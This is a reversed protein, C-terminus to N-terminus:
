LASNKNVYENWILHKEKLLAPIDLNYPCRSVCNRCETCKDTQLMQNNVMAFAREFPMRKMFSNVVLVTSIKIDEPCPQCYDCRHCWVNGTEKRIRDIENIESESLQIMKDVIDAIEKMEGIKEIGPDPVIGDLQLLFKFCLNANNLLGGGLPKMAIIGLNMKKM